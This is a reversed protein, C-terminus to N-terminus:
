GHCCFDAAQFISLSGCHSFTLHVCHSDRFPRLNLHSLSTACATRTHLIQALCQIADSIQWWHQSSALLSCSCFIRCLLYDYLMTHKYHLDGFDQIEATCHLRSIVAGCTVIFRSLLTLKHKLAILFFYWLFSITLPPCPKRIAFFSWFILKKCLM